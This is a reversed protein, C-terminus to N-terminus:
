LTSKNRTEFCEYGLLNISLPPPCVRTIYIVFGYFFVLGAVLGVLIYIDIFPSQTKSFVIEGQFAILSNDEDLYVIILM